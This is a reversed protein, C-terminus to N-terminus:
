IKVLDGLKFPGAAKQAPMALDMASAASPPSTQTLVAPGEPQAPPDEQPPLRVLQDERVEFDLPRPKGRVRVRYILAGGPGLAGREEIIRARKFGSHRIKVLDGVKLPAAEKEAM